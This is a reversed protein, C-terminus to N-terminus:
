SSNWCWASVSGVMSTMSEEEAVTFRCYVRRYTAKAMTDWWLLLFTLYHTFASGLRRYSNLGWSESPHPNRCIISVEVCAGLMHLLGCVYVFVFYICTIKFFMPPPSILETASNRWNWCLLVFCFCVSFACHLYGDYVSCQSYAETCDSVCMCVGLLFKTFIVRASWVASYDWTNVDSM